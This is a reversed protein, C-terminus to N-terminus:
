KGTWELWDRWLRAKTRPAKRMAALGTGALIPVEIGQQNLGRLAYDRQAPDHQLISRANNGLVLVGTPRVLAIHRWAVAGLHASDDWNRAPDYQPAISARYINAEDLGTARLFADLLRGDPGSLLQARDEREPQSVLVMLAAESPGRPAIRGATGDGLADETLWWQEFDALDTPWQEPDPLSPGRPEEPARVPTPTSGGESTDSASAGTEEEPQALFGSADDSYAYDVGAERWWAIVAAMAKEGAIERTQALTGGYAITADGKVARPM